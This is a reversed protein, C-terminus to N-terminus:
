RLPATALNAMPTGAWCWISGDARLACAHGYGVSVSVADTLNSVRVPTTKPTSLTGDGVQGSANDGWCHGTGDDLVACVTSGASALRTQRLRAGKDLRVRSNAEASGAVVAMLVAIVYYRNM